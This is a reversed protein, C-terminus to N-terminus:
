EFRQQALPEGAFSLRHADSLTNGHTRVLDELSGVTRGEARPDQQVVPVIDSDDKGVGLSPAEEHAIYGEVITEVLDAVFFQGLHQQRRRLSKQIMSNLLSREGLDLLGQGFGLRL